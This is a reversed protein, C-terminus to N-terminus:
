LYPNTYDAFSAAIIRYLETGPDADVTAVMKVYAGPETPWGAKKLEESNANLLVQLAVQDYVYLPVSTHGRAGKPFQMTALGQQIAWEKVSELTSRDELIQAEVLYGLPKKPGVRYLDRLTSDWSEVDNSM